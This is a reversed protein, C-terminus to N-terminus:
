KIHAPGSAASNFHGNNLHQLELFPAMSHNETFNTPNLTSLTKSCLWSVRFSGGAAAGARTLQQALAPLFLKVMAAPLFAKLFFYLNPSASSCSFILLPVSLFNCRKGLQLFEKLHRPHTM